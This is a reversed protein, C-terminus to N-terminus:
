YNIALQNSISPKTIPQLLQEIKIERKKNEGNILGLIKRSTLYRNIVDNTVFFAVIIFLGLRKNIQFVYAIILFLICRVVDNKFLKIIHKTYSETPQLMHPVIFATYFILIIEIFLSIKQNSLIKDFQDVLSLMM